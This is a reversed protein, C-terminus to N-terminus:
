KKGLLSTEIFARLNYERLTPNQYMPDFLEAQHLYSAVAHLQRDTLRYESVVRQVTDSSSEAPSPWILWSVAIALFFILYCAMLEKRIAKRELANQYNTKRM